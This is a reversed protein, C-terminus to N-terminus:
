VNYENEEYLVTGLCKLDWELCTCYTPLYTPEYTYVPLHILSQELASAAAAAKLNIQFFEM